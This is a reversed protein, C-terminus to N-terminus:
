GWAERARIGRVIYPSDYLKSQFRSLHSAAMYSRRPSGMEMWIKRPGIFFRFYTNQDDMIMLHRIEEGDPPPIKVGWIRLLM